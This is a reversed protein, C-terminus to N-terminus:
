VKKFKIEVVNGSVVARVWLERETLRQIDYTGNYGYQWIELNGLQGHRGASQWDSAM